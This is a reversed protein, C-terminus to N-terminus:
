RYSGGKQQAYLNTQFTIMQVLEKTWFLQFISLPSLERHAALSLLDTPLHHSSPYYDDPPIISYSKKWKPVQIDARATSPGPQPAPASTSPLPRSSSLRALPTDDEPEFESNPQNTGEFDEGLLIEQSTTSPGEVILEDEVDSGDGGAYSDDDSPIDVYESLANEIEQTSLGTKKM